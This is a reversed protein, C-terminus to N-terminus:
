SPASYGPHSAVLEHPDVEKTDTITEVNPALGAVSCNKTSLQLTVYWIGNKVHKVCERDLRIWIYGVRVVNRVASKSM